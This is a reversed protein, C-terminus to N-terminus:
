RKKNKKYEQLLKNVEPDNSKFGEPFDKSMEKIRKPQDVFVDKMNEKEEKSLPRQAFETVSQLREEEENENSNAINRLVEMSGKKSKPEDKIVNAPTKQTELIKVEVEKPKIEEVELDKVLYDSELMKKISELAKRKAENM